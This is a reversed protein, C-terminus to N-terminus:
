RNQLPELHNKNMVAQSKQINTVSIGIEFIFLGILVPFEAVIFTISEDQYFIYLIKEDTV